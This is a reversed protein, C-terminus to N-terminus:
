PKQHTKVQKIKFYLAIKSEVKKDLANLKKDLHQAHNSCPIVANQELYVWIETKYLLAIMINYLPPLAETELHHIYENLAQYNESFKEFHEDCKQKYIEYDQKIDEFKEGFLGSISNDKSQKLNCSTRQKANAKKIDM